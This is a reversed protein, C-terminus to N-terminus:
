TCQRSTVILKHNMVSIKNCNNRKQHAKSNCFTQLPFTQMYTKTLEKQSVLTILLKKNIKSKRSYLQSDRPLSM